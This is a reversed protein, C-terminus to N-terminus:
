KNIAMLWNNSTIDRIYNRLCYKVCFVKLCKWLTKSKKVNTDIENNILTREAHLILEHLKNEYETLPSKQCIEFTLQLNEISLSVPKIDTVFAKFLFLRCFTITKYQEHTCAFWWETDWYNVFYFFYVPSWRPM